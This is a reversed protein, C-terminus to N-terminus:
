REQITKQLLCRFNEFNIPRRQIRIWVLERPTIPRRASPYLDTNNPYYRTNISNLSTLKLLTIYRQDHSVSWCSGANEEINM